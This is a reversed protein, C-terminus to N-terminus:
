RGFVEGVYLVATVAPVVCLVRDLKNGGDDTVKVFAPLVVVTKGRGTSPDRRSDGRSSGGRDGASEPASTSTSSVAAKDIHWQFEYAAPQKFILLGVRAAARM